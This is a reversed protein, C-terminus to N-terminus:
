VGEKQNVIEQPKPMQPMVDCLRYFMISRAGDVPHSPGNCFSVSEIQSKWICFMGDLVVRVTPTASTGYCLTIRHIIIILTKNLIM